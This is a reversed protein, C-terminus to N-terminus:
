SAHSGGEKAVEALAALGNLYQRSAQGVASCIILEFLQDESYDASKAATIDEDTMKCSNFAVKEILANLPTPLEANNFAAQRQEHTSKGSGKLIRDILSQYLQQYEM